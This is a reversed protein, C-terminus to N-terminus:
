YYVIERVSNETAKKKFGDKNSYSTHTIWNGQADYEYSYSYIRETTKEQEIDTVTMSILNGKEDYLFAYTSKLKGEPDFIKHSSEEGKENYSYHTIENLNGRLYFATETKKGADNYAFTTKGVIEKGKYDDFEIQNGKADYQYIYHSYITSDPEYNITEILHNDINFKYVSKGGYKPDSDDAGIMNGNEDYTYTSKFGEDNIYEIENGNNGYTHIKKRGDAFAITKATFFGAANFKMEIVTTDVGKEEEIDWNKEVISKVKGKLEYNEWDTPKNVQASVQIAILAILCLTSIIKQM